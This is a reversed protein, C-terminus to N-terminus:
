RSATSAARSCPSSGRAAKTPRTSSCSCARHEGTVPRAWRELRTSIEAGISVPADFASGDLRALFAEAVDHGTRVIPPPAPVELRRASDRCIADVMGSLASRTLARRDVKRDLARLTGPMETSMRALRDGDVLAPTWRVAFSGSSEGREPQSTDAPAPAAGHCRAGDTRGGLDRGARALPSGARDRRRGSGDGAAVLWGLIDGVPIAMADATGGGPLPVAAHRTWGSEPAGAAALLEAVQERDGIPAHPGGAWAVVRGPEWSVQLLVPGDAPVEEEPEVVEARGGRRRGPGASETPGRTGAIRESTLREYAAALREM